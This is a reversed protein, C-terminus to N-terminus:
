DGTLPAYRDYDEPSDIDALLDEDPWPHRVVDVAHEHLLHNLGKDPPISDVEPILLPPLLLPHSGRGDVTPLHIKGPQEMWADHLLAVLGPTIAFVDVPHICLPGEFDGVAKIGVRVSSIMEAGPEPNVAIEVRDSVVARVAASNAPNVVVVLKRVRNGPFQSLVHEILSIKGWPATAKDRGLRQSAGAALVIVGLQQSTSM